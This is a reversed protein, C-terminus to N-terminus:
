QDPRRVLVSEVQDVMVFVIEPFVQELGERMQQAVEATMDGHFALLVRDGARLM